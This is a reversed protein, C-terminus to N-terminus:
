VKLGLGGGSILGPSRGGEGGVRWGGSGKVDSRPVEEGSHCRTTVVLVSARVTELRTTHM